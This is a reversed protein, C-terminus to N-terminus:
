FNQIGDRHENLEVLSSTESM